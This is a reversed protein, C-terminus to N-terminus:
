AISGTVVRRNIKGVSLPNNSGDGEYSFSVHTSLVRKRAQISKDLWASQGLQTFGELKRPFGIAYEYDSTVYIFPISIKTWGTWVKEGVKQWLHYAESILTADQRSLQPINQPREASVNSPLAACVFIIISLPIIRRIHNKMM